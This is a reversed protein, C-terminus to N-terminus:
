TDISLSKPNEDDDDDDDDDSGGHRFTGSRPTPRTHCPRRMLRDLIRKAEIVIGESEDYSPLSQMTMFSSPDLEPIDSGCIEPQSMTIVALVTHIM